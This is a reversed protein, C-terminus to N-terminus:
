GLDHGVLSTPSDLHKSPTTAVEWSSRATTDKLHRTQIKTHKLRTVPLFLELPLFQFCCTSRPECFWGSTSAEPEPRASSPHPCSQSLCGHPAGLIAANRRAHCSVAWQHFCHIIDKGAPIECAPLRVLSMPKQKGELVLQGRPVSSNGVLQLHTEM